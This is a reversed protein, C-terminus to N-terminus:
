QSSKIIEPLTLNIQKQKGDKTVVFAFVEDDKPVEVWFNAYRSQGALLDTIKPNPENNEIDSSEGVLRVSYPGLTIPKDSINEVFYHVVINKRNKYKNVDSLCSNIVVWQYKYTAGEPWFSECDKETRKEKETHEVETITIKIDDFYLSENQSYIDKSGFYKSHGFTKLKFYDYGFYLGSAIVAIGIVVLIPRLVKRKSNQHKKEVMGLCSVLYPRILKKVSATLFKVNGKKVVFM